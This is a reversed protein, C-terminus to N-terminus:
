LKSHRGSAQIHLVVPPLALRDQPVVVTARVTSGVPPQIALSKLFREDLTASENLDLQPIAEALTSLEPVPPLRCCPCDSTSSVPDPRSGSSTSRISPQPEQLPTSTVVPTAPREVPHSM